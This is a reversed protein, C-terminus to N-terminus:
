DRIMQLREVHGAAERTIGRQGVNKRMEQEWMRGIDGARRQAVVTVQHESVAEESCHPMRHLSRARPIPRCDDDGRIVAKSTKEQQRGLQSMELIFQKSGHKRPYRVRACSMNGEEDLKTSLPIM